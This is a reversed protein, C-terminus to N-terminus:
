SVNQAQKQLAKKFEKTIRKNTRTLYDPDDLLRMMIVAGEIEAVTLEAKLRADERQYAHCFLHELASLWTQFFSQIIAAFSPHSRKTELGINVFFDGGEEELFIEESTRAMQKLRKLPPISSDHAVSFVKNEYHDKLSKLVEEMLAEKSEVYHYISGKLLGNAAAVDAMSAASYGKSKFVNLSNRLLDRRDIKPKAM